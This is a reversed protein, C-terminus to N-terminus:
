PKQAVLIFVPNLANLRLDGATPTSVSNQTQLICLPWDMQQLISKARQLSDLLVTHVVIKGGSQLRGLAKELVEGGQGLGGGMFIRDPDPLQDLGQPLNACVPQVLYAGTRRINEKIMDVRQPNKELAYIEGKSLISAAEISVSGCGAGLDWLTNEPNLELYALAMARIPTKTILGQEKQFQDDAIGLHLKVKHPAFRELFMLNLDSFTEQAAEQLTYGAWKEKDHALDEFIICRFGEVGIDLLKKAIVSPTNEPDTYVAVIDQHTIAALLPAYDQRGHLSIVRIDQWPIRLKAAAAQVATINPYIRIREPGLKNLLYIGIGFFLPDGDALVVVKNGAHLEQSLEQVLESLPSRLPIKKAPHKPFYKLLREGAILVQAQQLIQSAESHLHDPHMGMGIIHLYNKM